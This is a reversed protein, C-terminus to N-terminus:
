VPRIGLGIQTKAPPVSVKKTKDHPPEFLPAVKTGISRIEPRYYVVIYKYIIAAKLQSYVSITLLMKMSVSIRNNAKIVFYPQFHFPQRLILARFLYKHFYTSASVTSLPDLNKLIYFITYNRKSISEFPCLYLPQAPLVVIM